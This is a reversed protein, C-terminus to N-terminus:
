IYRFNTIKHGCVACTTNTAKIQCVANVVKSHKKKIKRRDITWKEQVNRYMYIYIWRYIDIFIDSKNKKETYKIQTKTVVYRISNGHKLDQACAIEVCWLIKLSKINM